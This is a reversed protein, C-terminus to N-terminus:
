KNRVDNITKFYEFIPNQNNYFDKFIICHLLNEITINDTLSTMM